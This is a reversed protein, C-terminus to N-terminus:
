SLRYGALFAQVSMVPKGAPKLCNIQLADHGCFILLKKPEVLIQGPKGQQAVVSASTIIVDKNALKTHSGPWGAYARIEREIQLASKRWDIIGDAKTLLHSYTARDPHPQQRPKIVSDAIAPLIEVLLKSGLRHLQEALEIKTEKGTLHITKQKYIPGEDMGATLRMISVGTKTAGDLIAQEIPTPGRYAPLLSPHVNIIGRPFQDLVFQPIIHGYAALVAVKAKHPKLESITGTVHQEIKFGASVLAERIIPRPVPLGTALKENGFFVIPKAGSTKITKSKKIM